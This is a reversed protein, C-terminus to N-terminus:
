CDTIQNYHLIQNTNRMNQARMCTRLCSLVRFEGVLMHRTQGGFSVRGECTNDLALYPRQLDFRALTLLGKFYPPKQGGSFCAGKGHRIQSSHTRLLPPPWLIESSVTGRGTRIPTVSASSVRGKGMLTIM